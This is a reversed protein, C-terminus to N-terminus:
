RTMVFGALVLGALGAYRWIGRPQDEDGEPPGGVRTRIIVGGCSNIGYQVPLEAGHYVQVSEVDSPSALRDIGEGPPMTVEDLVVTPVCDDRLLVVNALAPRRLVRTGPVVALLNTLHPPNRQEIEERTVLFGGSGAQNQPRYGGRAPEETVVRIPELPIPRVSLPLVLDLDAGAAVQLTDAMSHYGLLTVSLRYAGSPVDTFLFQGEDDTVRTGRETMGARGSALSVAAAELAEGTEHDVVKGRVAVREVPQAPEQGALADGGVYALLAVAVM